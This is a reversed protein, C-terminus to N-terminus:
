SSVKGLDHIVTVNPRVKRAQYNLGLGLASNSIKPNAHHHSTDVERLVLM